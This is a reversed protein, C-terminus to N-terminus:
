RKLTCRRVSPAPLVLKTKGVAAALRRQPEILLAAAAHAARLATAVVAEPV